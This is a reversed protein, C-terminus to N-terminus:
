FIWCIVLILAQCGGFFHIFMKLSVIKLLKPRRVIKGHKKSFTLHVLVVTLLFISWLSNTFFLFLFYLFRPLLHHWFVGGAESWINQKVTYKFRMGGSQFYKGAFYHKWVSDKTKHLYFTWKSSQEKQWINAM